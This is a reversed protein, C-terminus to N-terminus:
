ILSHCDVLGVKLVSYKLECLHCLSLALETLECKLVCDSKFPVPVSSAM